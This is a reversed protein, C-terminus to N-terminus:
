PILRDLEDRMVQPDVDVGTWHRIGLVAQNVLMGRGDLTAAGREAAAALLMTEAPSFVVDAVLMEPTISDLDVPPVADVEPALGISTANLVVDTGAPIRHLGSWPEYSVTVLPALLGALETGRVPDRNVVSISAVGALALEVACARAAGGAGYLVVRKGAPDAERCLSALFGAGDTNEGFFGDDRRVVCNVAGILTASEGLGALHEIVAVKHPMSCNFGAWGMAWAGRVAAALGEPPVECNLYRAAIGHHAYAAEIIVVTPNEGAPISFSGTLAPLFPGATGVRVTSAPPKTVHSTTVPDASM